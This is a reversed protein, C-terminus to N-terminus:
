LLSYKTVNWLFDIVWYKNRVILADDPSYLSTHFRVIHEMNYTNDVIKWGMM